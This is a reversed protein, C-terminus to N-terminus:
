ATEEKLGASRMMASALTQEAKTLAAAATNTASVLQDKSFDAIEQAIDADTITSKAGSINIYQAQLDNLTSLLRNELVGLSSRYDSLENLNIDTFPLNGQCWSVFAEHTM